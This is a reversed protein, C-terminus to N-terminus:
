EATPRRRWVTDNRWKITMANDVIDGHLNWLDAFIENNSECRGGTAMGKENILMFPGLDQQILICPKNGYPLIRLVVFGSEGKAV